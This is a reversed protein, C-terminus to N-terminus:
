EIGRKDFFKLMMVIHELLRKLLNTDVKDITDEKSHIYRYSSKDLVGFGGFGNNALVYADSRAFHIRKPKHLNVTFDKTNKFFFEGRKGTIVDIQAGITDFNLMFSRTRDLHKIKHYLHRIGMTANEEAGTFLFWLNNNNLRNKEDSYYNLLELVCAIGSANDIAGHSKNNTTNFCLIIVTIFNITLLIAGILVLYLNVQIYTILLFLILCCISSYIWLKFFFGRYIISFRQGKSDLHCVFLLNGRFNDDQLTRNNSNDSNGLIKVFLNQSFLKKGIRIKEPKRTIIVFPIFIIIVIPILIIMKFYLFFLLCFTLFFVIKQYVRPYFTSFSFEQVSPKLNLLEIKKKVINFAEKENPTGSLRPFSILELNERIRTEDIM